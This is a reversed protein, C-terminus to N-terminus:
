QNLPLPDRKAILQESADTTVSQSSAANAAEVLFRSLSWKRAKAAKRIKERQAVSDFIVTAIVRQM